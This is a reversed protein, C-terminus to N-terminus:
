GGVTETVWARLAREETQVRTMVEQSPQEMSAIRRAMERPALGAVSAIDLGLPTSGVGEQFQSLMPLVVKWAVRQSQDPCATIWLKCSKLILDKAHPLASVDYVLGPKVRGSAILDSFDCAVNNAAAIATQNM